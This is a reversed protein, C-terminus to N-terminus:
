TKNLLKYGLGGIIVFLIILSYKYIELRKRMAIPNFSGSDIIGQYLKLFSNYSIEKKGNTRNVSNHIRHILGIYGQKTSLELPLNTKSLHERFHNKCIDCPLVNSLSHLFVIQNEIDKKSPNEPYGMTIFHLSSWLTPGWIVPDM